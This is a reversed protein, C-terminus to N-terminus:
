CAEIIKKIVSMLEKELVDEGEEEGEGEEMEEEADGEDGMSQEAIAQLLEPPVDSGGAVVVIKKKKEDMM